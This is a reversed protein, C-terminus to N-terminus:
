NYDTLDKVQRSHGLDSRVYGRIEVGPRLETYDAFLPVYLHRQGPPPIEYLKEILAPEVSPMCIIIPAAPVAMNVEQWWGVNPYNRLYWPLPWYDGGPCIVEIYIEKGVPSAVAVDEIRNVIEFIDPSTHAYVYPNVPNAEYKFNALWAQIVLLFCGIAILGRVLKKQWRGPPLKLIVATGIGAMVMLGQYFGLMSWPTKYPIASYIVTMVISYVALFRALHPNLWYPPKKSLSVTMGVVALILILAESWFPGQANRFLGLIQLYYYWPHQHSPNTGARNFYTTYTKLSDVIGPLNSLFSSYFLISVLLGSTVVLLFHTPSLWKFLNKPKESKRFYTLWIFGSALLIAGFAIICTEKTAHMLGLFIGTLLAWVPQRTQFYRYGAAIAGLTFCVLLMEMIYYRSYYVMAPSIATFFAASLVSEWGLGDELWWLFLILLIGFFVPVIRLTFEDIDTLRTSQTLWAPLLTFYNLTPGHYEFPDYKYFNDELLQGFKIAQVAEDTHMPRQALRPLRLALAFILIILFFLFHHASKKV